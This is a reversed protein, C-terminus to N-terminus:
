REKETDRERKIETELHKKEVERDRPNLNSYQVCYCFLEVGPLSELPAFNNNNLV